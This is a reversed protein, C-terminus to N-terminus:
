RAARAKHYEQQVKAMTMGHKSAIVSLHAWKGKSAILDGILGVPAPAPAPKQHKPRDAPKPAEDGFRRATHRHPLGLARARKTVAGQGIGFLDAIEQLPMDSAWLDILKQTQEPTAGRTKALGWQSVWSQVTKHSVNHMAAIQPYTLGSEILRVLQEVTPRAM